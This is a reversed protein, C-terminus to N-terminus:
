SAAKARIRQVAFQWRQVYPNRGNQDFFNISQGLSTGLGAAAGLPPQLGAPFPNAAIAKSADALPMEAVPTEM